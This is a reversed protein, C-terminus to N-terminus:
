DIIGKERLFDEAVKREPMGEEDVTFNMQQMESNTIAGELLKLAAVVEPYDEFASDSLISMCYYPLFFQKDDELITLNYEKIKGDTSFADILDVDGNEVATYRIGPDLGIEEKFVIEYVEKVGVMGDKRELFEMTAGLILEPGFEKLDSMKKLNYKEAIEPRVSLTYTNNFGLPKLLNLPFDSEIKEKVIDYVTDPDTEGEMQLMSAYLTGTYDGYLDIEDNKIAEFVIQTGGFEKVDTKYDTKDEIVAAFIQGIIRQETYNKHGIKITVDENSSAGCASLMLLSVAVLTVMGLKMLKKM